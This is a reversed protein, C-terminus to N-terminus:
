SRRYHRGPHTDISFRQQSFSDARDRGAAECDRERLNIGGGTTTTAARMSKAARTEAVCKMVAPKMSEVTVAKWVRVMMVAMVTVVTMVVKVIMAERHMLKITPVAAAQAPMGSM